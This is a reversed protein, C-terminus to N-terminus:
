IGLHQKIAALESKLTAVETKLEANENELAIVKKNLEQTAAVNYVFIDNYNLGLKTPITGLHEPILIPENNEDFIVNGSADKKFCNEFDDRYEKGEVCFALEPIKKVEQAIFGAELCYYEDTLPNGSSDLEYDYNHDKIENSKFYLKANLKNIIDIANTIKKENHKVRDDSHTNWANSYGHGNGYFQFKEDLPNHHPAGHTGWGRVRFAIYHNEYNNSDYSRCIIRAMTQGGGRHGNTYSVFELAVDDNYGSSGISLKTNQGPDSGFHSYSGVCLTRFWGQGNVDLLSSPSATGIGVNANGLEIPDGRSSYIYFTKNASGGDGIWAFEGDSDRFSIYNARGNENGQTTEMTLVCGNSKLHLKSGPSTTGIGVNGSRNVILHCNSNSPNAGESGGWFALGASSSLNSGSSGVGIGYFYNGTSTEEFCAIIGKGSAFDSEPIQANGGFSLKSYPSTTGIGVNGDGKITLRYGASDTGTRKYFNLNGNDSGVNIGWQEVSGGANAELELWCSGNSSVKLVQGFMPSSTTGMVRLAHIGTDTTGIGVNGSTRDITLVTSGDVSNDHRNINFTNAKWNLIDNDAGGNFGISFGYNNINNQTENFFIRGSANGNTSTGEDDPMLVIGGTNTADVSKFVASGVVDLKAQPDTTGIGVYKNQYKMTMVAQGQVAFQLYDNSSLYASNGLAGTFAAGADGNMGIKFYQNNQSITGDQSMFIMPNDNEGSNNTDAELRLVVDGTSKLHLISDPSTTGIGVNGGTYTIDTTGITWLSEEPVLSLVQGSGNVISGTLRIDGNIDLPYRPNGDGMGMTSSLGIGLRGEYFGTKYSM